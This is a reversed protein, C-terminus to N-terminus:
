RVAQQPSLWIPRPWLGLILVLAVVYFPLAQQLTKGGMRLALGFLAESLALCVLINWSGTWRRLALSDEPRNRMAHAHSRYRRKVFYFVELLNLIGLAGFVTAAHNFGLWSLRPEMEGIWVYLALAVIMSAWVARMQQLAKEKTRPIAL